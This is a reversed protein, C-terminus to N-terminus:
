EPSMRCQLALNLQGPASSLRSFARRSFGPRRERIPAQSTLSSRTQRTRIMDSGRTVPKEERDASPGVCSPTVFALRRLRTWSRATIRLSQARLSSRAAGMTAVPVIRNVREPLAHTSREEQTLSCCSQPRTGQRASVRNIRWMRHLIVASSAPSRSAPGLWAAGKKIKLGWARLSFWKRSRVLSRTPPKTSPPAPANTTLDASRARLRQDRRVSLPGADTLGLHAGADRSHRFRDPQDITARFTLAGPWSPTGRM